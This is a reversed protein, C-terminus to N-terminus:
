FAADLLVLTEAPGLIEGGSPDRFSPQILVRKSEVGSGLDPVTTTWTLIGSAGITGVQLVPNPPQGPLKTRVLRVGRLAGAYQFQERDGTHLLVEEGPLGTFHLQLPQGERLPRVGSVHRASGALDNAPTWGLPPPLGSVLLNGLLHGATLQYSIAVGGVGQTAGGYGIGGNGGFLQSGAAFSFLNSLADVANGGYGAYVYPDGPYDPYDNGGSGARAEVDYLAIRSSTCTLAPRGDGGNTPGNSGGLYGRVVAVDLSNAVDLGPAGGNPLSNTPGSADCGQMRVAGTNNLLRLAPVFNTSAFVFGSLTVSRTATLSQVLTGGTVSALPDAVIDLAKNTVVFASYSGPRVLIVDGDNAANVAAQISTYPAGGTASVVRVDARAVAAFLLVAFSVFSASTSNRM